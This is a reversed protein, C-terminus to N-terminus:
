AEEVTASGGATATMRRRSAARVVLVWLMGVMMAIYGAFVIPRGPDRSVGLFSVTRGSEQRYSSQYFTYGGHTTPSNMSVVRSQTRGSTPDVITVQSEFSRPKQIGPYRGLRFRDLKLTFGLPVAKDGFTVEHAEGDVVVPRPRYKQFGMTSIDKATTLKLIVAPVRDKRVLDVPEVKWNVRARDFRRLVTFQRGPWPSEIPVGLDLKRSVTKGGAQRFRAHLADGPGTLVEVPTTPERSRPAVFTVKLGETQKGGHMSKFDPFRAFAFRRETGSPGVLEVEVAPNVPRTSASKIKRDPGVVAHPLYRLVRVTHGTAGIPVAKGTCKELPFQFTSGESAVKVVGKSTPQSAPVTDLLRALEEEGQVPHLKVAVNGLTATREAFVWAQHSAGAGSLLVEVALHPHTADNLVQRVATSDPLYREVELRLDGLTLLPAEPHDVAVFGSFVSADLDVSSRLQGAAKAVTLSGQRVNFHKTTRGEAIGVQGEVGLHKTVLAGALVVLIAGHTLVFGIQRKSFPYRLALAALVSCGLLALLVEFWRSKYFAALARETGHTAEFVTACAMAVLLLILLVAAFWLLGVARLIARLGKRSGITSSSNNTTLPRTRRGFAMDRMALM